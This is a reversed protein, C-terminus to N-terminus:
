YLANDQAYKACAKLKTALVRWKSYQKRERKCAKFMLYQEYCLCELKIIEHVVDEEVNSEEM